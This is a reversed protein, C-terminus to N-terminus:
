GRPQLSAILGELEAGLAAERASGLASGASFLAFSVYEHLKSKLYEDPDGVAVRGVNQAVTVPDFSGDAAPGAGQFLVDYVGGGTAFGDLAAALAEAKGEAAMREFLVRLARNAVDVISEAGGTMRPRCMGVHGSQILAFVAKTTEFEGLGSRRGIADVSRSGDIAHYVAQLDAPPSEKRDTHTPIWDGSPITQRFYRIEDLRTVGEMLLASISLAHRSALRERDFGDLFFFTGDDVGLAAIVIEEIQKGLYAYVQESTALGLEVVAEGFRVGQDMRASIARQLAEDIAGYRCMVSGLREEVVNTTAGLVSGYELYISRRLDGSLVVLEGRWRTHGFMSLIDCLAGPAAIEGALRVWREPGEGKSGEHGSQRLLLVQEPSPLLRYTGQGDSLRRTAWSGIPRATGEDDIRVLDAPRDTKM